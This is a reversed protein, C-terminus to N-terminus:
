FHSWLRRVFHSVLDNKGVTDRKILLVSLVAASLLDVLIPFKGWPDGPPGFVVVGLAVLAITASIVVGVTNLRQNM